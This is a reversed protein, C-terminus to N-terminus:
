GRAVRATAITTLQRVDSLRDLNRLCALADQAADPALTRTACSLFKTALEEDSAPNEPYGRAGNAQETLTQGNRLHIHVRAQTLPPADVGLGRDVIMSSRAMLAAIQPDGLRGTDFSEIGVRGDAIAAAACFPMSFKAELGTSPRDYILVTPTIPDVQIEVREVDEAAFAARKRLLLIADLPPHTAACSPYLKVSIGTEVIEWRSGLDAIERDLDTRESDMAHLFGQPGDLARESATLGRSALMAALVGDRAALGAHLPKVMTGFNEKLGSAESAAIAIAHGAMRADLGMLRSVAAAAGIAGLTSTCHWGRQYHRPNMLRGLRAEIEFGIAYAEVVRPGSAKAVEGAAIIASVLPASPHALSVFCMDDYDLAHAATGNALAAETASTRVSTGLVTCFEGSLPTTVSQLIRSVPEAAGALTVGITDLIAAAARARAIPPPTASTVFAALAPLTARSAEISM